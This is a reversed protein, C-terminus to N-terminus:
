KINDITQSIRMVMAEIKKIQEELSDKNSEPNKIGNRIQETCAMIIALPNNVQHAIENHADASLSESASEM